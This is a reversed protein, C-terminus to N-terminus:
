SMAAVSAVQIMVPGLPDTLPPNYPPVVRETFNEEPLKMTYPDIHFDFTFMPSKEELSPVLDDLSSM